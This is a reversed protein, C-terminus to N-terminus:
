DNNRACSLEQLLSCLGLHWYHLPQSARTQVLTFYMSIEFSGEEEEQLKEESRNSVTEKQKLVSPVESLKGRPNFKRKGGDPRRPGENM